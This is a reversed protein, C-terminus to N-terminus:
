SAPDTIEAAHEQWLFLWYEPGGAIFKRMDTYRREAVAAPSCIPCENSSPQENDSPQEDTM